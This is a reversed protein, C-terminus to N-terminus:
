GLPQRAGIRAYGRVDPFPPPRRPDLDVEFANLCMAMLSFTGICGVADVLGADGWLARAAAYTADSVFHQELLEKCFRYFTREDEVAFDLARKEALAQVVSEPLGAAVAKGVHANWSDQADWHRAAILLSFERLKEPLSSRFRLHSALSEVRDCLEPSQLLCLFPGRVQGGRQGAIREAVEQQRASYQDASIPPLRV